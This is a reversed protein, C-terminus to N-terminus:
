SGSGPADAEGRIVQRMSQLKNETELWERDPRSDRTIGAGAHLRAQGGGVCMCRLNVYLQTSGAMNVPGLFGSYLRRHHCENESIFARAPERPMGCVASTPHLLHLMVSALDPFAVQETDVHFETKLHFLCGARVTRPGIEQFERLRIQKFRNIIYRSVLAQEEIEKQTWVADGPEVGDPAPQTGALAVTAFEGSATQGVLLEPSAGIWVGADPLMILSTFAATDLKRLKRFLRGLSADPRLEEDAVRSLVVKEFKGSQIESLAREVSAVYDSERTVTEEPLAVHVTTARGSEDNLDNLFEDVLNADTGEAISARGAPWEICLDARIYPVTEDPTSNYPGVMFGSPASALDEVRHTGSGSLDVILLAQESGPEQWAAMAYGAEAARSSVCDLLAGLGLEHIAALRSGTIEVDLQM